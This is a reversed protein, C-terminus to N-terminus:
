PRHVKEFTWKRYPSWGPYGFWFTVEKVEGDPDREFLLQGELELLEFCDRTVPVATLLPRNFALTLGQPTKELRIDFEGQYTGAYASLEQARLELVDVERPEWGSWGLRCALAREVTPWVFYGYQANTLVVVAEGREPYAMFNGHWGWTAGGHNFRVTSDAESVKVGLGFSWQYSTLMEQVLAPSLVPGIEGQYARMIEILFRGLDTATTWLGGAASEMHVPGKGPIPEGDRLHGTAAQSWLEHKLPAYRSNEMGLPEFVHERMVDPFPHGTVDEMMKQVVQYGGGSYRFKEGPPLVLEVPSSNAPPQGNLIQILTPLDEEARYGEFGPVSTGATHSLLRRLTVKGSFDNRPLKWDRLVKDVEQDLDLIGKRVLALAGVAAVPKSISASQFLTNSNVPEPDNKGRVGWAQAAHVERDRVVAATVAPVLYTGM